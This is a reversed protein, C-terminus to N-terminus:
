SLSCQMVGRKVAHGAALLDAGLSNDGSFVEALVRGFSDTRDLTTRVQFEGPRRAFWDGTFLRAKLGAEATPGIREPCDVGLIRLRQRLWLRFGLDIDIEVTDGDIVRVLRANRVYDEIM